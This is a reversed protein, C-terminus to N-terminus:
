KVAGKNVQNIAQPQSNISIWDLLPCRPLPPAATGGFPFSAKFFLKNCIRARTRLWTKAVLVPEDAELFVRPESHTALVLLATTIWSFTCKKPTGKM